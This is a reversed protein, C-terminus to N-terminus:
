DRDSPGAGILRHRPPRAGDGIRCRLRPVRNSSLAWGRALPDHGLSSHDECRQPAGGVRLTELRLSLDDHEILGPIAEEIEETGWEAGPALAPPGRDAMARRDAGPQGPDRPPLDLGDLGPEEVDAPVTRAQEGLLRGRPSGADAEVQDAALLARPDIPLDQPHFRPRRPSAPDADEEGVGARGDEKPGRHPAEGGRVRHRPRRRLTSLRPRPAPRPSAGPTLPVRRRARTGRM